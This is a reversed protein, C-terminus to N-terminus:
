LGRKWIRVKMNRNLQNINREDSTLLFITNSVGMNKINNIDIEEVRYAPDRMSHFVLNAKDICDSLIVGIPKNECDYGIYIKMM